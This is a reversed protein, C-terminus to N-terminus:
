YQITEINKGKLLEILLLNNFLGANVSILMLPLFPLFDKFFIPHVILYFLYVLTSSTIFFYDKKEFKTSEEYLFAHYIILGLFLLPQEKPSFILPLLAVGNVISHVFCINKMKKSRSSYVEFCLWQLIVAKEHVHFGFNM